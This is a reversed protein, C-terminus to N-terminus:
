CIYINFSKKDIKHNTNYPFKDLEIIEEQEELTAKPM